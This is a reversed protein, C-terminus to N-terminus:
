EPKEDDHNHCRISYIVVGAIGSSADVFRCHKDSALVEALDAACDDGVALDGVKCGDDVQNVTLSTSTTACALLDVCPPASQDPWTPAPRPPPSAALSQRGMNGGILLLSGLGFGLVLKKFRM